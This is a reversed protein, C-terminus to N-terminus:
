GLQPQELDLQHDLSQQDLSPQEQPDQLQQQQQPQQEDYVRTIVSSRGGPREIRYHLSKLSQNEKMMQIFTDDMSLILLQFKGKKSESEVLKCLAEALTRVNKRDLNATPSDLVFVGADACLVKAVAMRMILSALVKEGASARGRMEVRRGDKVMMLQFANVTNNEM